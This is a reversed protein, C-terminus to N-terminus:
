GARGSRNQPALAEEALTRAENMKKSRREYDAQMESIRAEIRIKTEKAAREAQARLAKVKLDAEAKKLDIAAKARDQIGKLRQKLDLMNNQIIEQNAANGKDLEDELRELSKQLAREEQLLQDEIMETRFRRFVTGGQEKLRLEVPSVWSEEIEALVAVKRAALTKGVDDLFQLDIGHRAWDALLGVYSGIAGGVAAGAPGGLIGVIGGMLLGLGTGVLLDGGQQKVSIGGDRNKIILAWAYLSIGGEQHLEKLAHLGKGAADETDFVAVLMENM